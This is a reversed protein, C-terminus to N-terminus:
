QKSKTKSKEWRGNHISFKLLVTLFNEKTVANEKRLAFDLRYFHHSIKKGAMHIWRLVLLAIKRSLPM